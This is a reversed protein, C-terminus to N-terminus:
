GGIVTVTLTADFAVEGCTLEAVTVPPAAPALGLALSEVVTWDAIGATLESLGVEAGSFEGDKTKVTL